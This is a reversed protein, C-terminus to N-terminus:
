DGTQVSRVNWNASDICEISFFSSEQRFCCSSGLRDALQGLGREEWQFGGTFSQLMENRRSVMHSEISLLMMPM